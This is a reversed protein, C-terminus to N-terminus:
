RDVQGPLSVGVVAVDEPRLGPLTAIVGNVCDVVHGVVSEPDDDSPAVPTRYHGVRNMAQDFLEAIVYTEALDVGVLYPKAARMRLRSAPRGGASKTSEAEELLGAA